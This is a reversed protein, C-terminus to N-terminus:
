SMLMALNWTSKPNHKVTSTNQHKINYNVLCDQVAQIDKQLHEQCKKVRKTNGCYKLITKSTKKM